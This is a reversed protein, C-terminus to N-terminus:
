KLFFSSLVFEPLPKLPNEGKPFLLESLAEEDIECIEKYTAGLEKFKEM